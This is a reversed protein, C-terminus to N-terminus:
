SETSANPLTDHLMPVFRVLLDHECPFQTGEHSYVQIEQHNIDQGIPIILKGHQKLQELLAQPVQPAAAAVIIADFPSEKALGLYGDAFYVHINEINELKNLNNCALQYLGEIREITHVEDFISALLGAQYGSGTGIELVKTLSPGQMTTAIMEAILSPQSITQQYSIPIPHDEYAQALAHEPVFFERPTQTFANHIIPDNIGKNKILEILQSNTQTSTQTMIRGQPTDDTLM